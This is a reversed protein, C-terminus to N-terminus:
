VSVLLADSLQLLLTTSLGCNTTVSALHMVDELIKITLLLLEVRLQLVQLILQPREAERGLFIVLTIYAGVLALLDLCVIRNSLRVLGEAGPEGLLISVLGRVM